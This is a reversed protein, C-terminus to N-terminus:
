QLEFRGFYGTVGMVQTMTGALHGQRRQPM